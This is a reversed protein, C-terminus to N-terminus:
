KYSRVLEPFLTGKQLAIDPCFGAIYEQSPFYVVALMCEEAGAVQEDDCLGECVEGAPVVGAVSLPDIGTGPSELACIPCNQLVHKNNDM